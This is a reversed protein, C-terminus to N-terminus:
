KIREIIKNNQFVTITVRINSLNLHNFEGINLNMFNTKKRTKNKNTKLDFGVVLKNNILSNQKQKTSKNKQIIDM